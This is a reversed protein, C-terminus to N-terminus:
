DLHQVVHSTFVRSAFHLFSFLWTGSGNEPIQWLNVLLKRPPHQGAKGLNKDVDPSRPILRTQCLRDGGSGVAM